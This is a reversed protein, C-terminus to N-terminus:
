PRRLFASSAAQPRRPHAAPCRSWSSAQPLDDAPPLGSMPVATVLLAHLLFSFVLFPLIAPSPRDSPM